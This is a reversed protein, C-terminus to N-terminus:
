LFKAQQRLVQRLALWIARPLVATSFDKPFNRKLFVQRQQVALDADFVVIDENTKALECLAMGFSERTAIKKSEAM